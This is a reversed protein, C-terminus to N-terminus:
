LQISLIDIYIQKLIKENTDNVALNNFQSLKDSKEHNKLFTKYMSIISVYLVGLSVYGMTIKQYGLIDRVLLCSSANLYM